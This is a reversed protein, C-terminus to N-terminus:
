EAANARPPWDAVRIRPLEFRDTTRSYWGAGHMRGILDLKPTDIYCRDQDLVCDDRLTFRWSRALCWPATSASM